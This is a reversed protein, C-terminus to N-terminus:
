FSLNMETKLAPSPPWFLGKILWHNRLEIANDGSIMDIPWHDVMFRM